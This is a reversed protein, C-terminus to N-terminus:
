RHFGGHFYGGHFGYGGRFGYGFGLRVSVPPYWYGPYYAPYYGYAPEYYVVRPATEVVTPPPTTTAVASGAAPLLQYSVVNTQGNALQYTVTVQSTSQEIRAITVGQATAANTLEAPTPLRPSYIVQSPATTAPVVATPAPV